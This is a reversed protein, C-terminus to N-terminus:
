YTKLQKLLRKNLNLEYVYRFILSINGGFHCIITKLMIDDIIFNYKTKVDIM